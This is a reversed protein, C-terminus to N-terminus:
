LGPVYDVISKLDNLLETHAPDRFPRALLYLVSGVVPLVLTIVIWGAKRLAPLDPRRAADLITSGILVFAPVSIVLPLIAIDSM